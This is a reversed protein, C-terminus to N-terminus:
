ESSKSVAGKGVKGKPKAPNAPDVDAAAAAQPIEIPVSTLTKNLRAVVDTTVEADDSQPITAQKALVLNAGREKAIVGVIDLAAKEVKLMATNYAQQLAQRKAQVSKDLDQYRQQFAKAKAEFAEQSLVTRQRELESRMKQLDDEQHAVEKSYTQSEQNLAAQVGKGANSDHLVQPLDVIIIAPVLAQGAANKDAPQALAPAALLCVIPAAILAAGRVAFFKM